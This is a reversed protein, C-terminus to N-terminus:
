FRVELYTVHDEVASYWHPTGEPILILDGVSVRRSEGGEVSARGGDAPRVAVGGTVLTGSGSTIYHIENGVEHVIAGAAETRHIMNIRYDDTNVMRGAAMGAREGANQEILTAIDTASFYSGPPMPSQATVVVALGVLTSVAILRTLM